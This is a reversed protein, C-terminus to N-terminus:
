PQEVAARRAADAVEEPSPQGSQAMGATIMSIVAPKIAGILEHLLTTVFGGEKKPKGDDHPEPSAQRAHGNARAGYLAREISELKKLAQQEKSPIAVAAAAFGAVAASAVMMWPHSKVWLKPDATKFLETRVDAFANAIASKAAAQQQELYQTESLKKSSTSPDPADSVNTPTSSSM